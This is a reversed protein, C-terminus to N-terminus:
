QQGRLWRWPRRCRIRVGQSISGSWGPAAQRSPACRPRRASGPSAARRGRLRKRFRDSRSIGQRFIGGPAPFFNGGGRCDQRKVPRLSPFAFRSTSGGSGSRAPGRRAKDPPLPMLARFPSWSVASPRCFRVSPSELGPSRWAVRVVGPRVEGGRHRHVGDEGRNRRWQGEAPDSAPVRPFNACRRDPPRGAPPAAQISANAHCGSLSRNDPGPRRRPHRRRARRHLPGRGARPITPAPHRGRRRCQWPRSRRARFAPAQRGRSQPANRYPFPVSVVRNGPPRGTRPQRGRRPRRGTRMM